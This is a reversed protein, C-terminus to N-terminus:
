NRHQGKKSEGRKEGGNYGNRMGCSDRVNERERVERTHTVRDQKLALFCEEDVNKKEKDKRHVTTDGEGGFTSMAGFNPSVRSPLLRSLVLAIQKAKGKKRVWVERVDGRKRKSSDEAWIVSDLFLTLPVFCFMTIAVVASFSCALTLLASM